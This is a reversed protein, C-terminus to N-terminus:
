TEKEYWQRGCDPCIGHSFQATSHIRLYAEMSYWESNGTDQIRRCGSCVKVLGSLIRAAMDGRKEETVDRISGLLCGSTRDPQIVKAQQHVQRVTGDSKRVIRHQINYDTKTEIAQAVAERVTARDDPHVRQYFEERRIPEGLSIGFINYTEPSWWLKETMLDSEWSGINAIHQATELNYRIRRLDDEARKRRGGFVSLVVGVVVFLVLAMNDAFDPPPGITHLPPIFFYDILVVSVGTAIFGSISGSVQAVVAVALVHFLFPSRLGLIPNFLYRLATAGVTALVAIAFQRVLGQKLHM